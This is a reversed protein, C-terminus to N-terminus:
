LWREGKRHQICQYKAIRPDFGPPRPPVLIMKVHLEIHSTCQELTWKFPGHAAVIQGAVTLAVIWVMM